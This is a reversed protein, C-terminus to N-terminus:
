RGGGPPSVYSAGVRPLPLPPAGEPLPGAPVVTGPDFIELLNARVELAGTEPNIANHLNTLANPSTDLAEALSNRQDVLVRTIGILKDVNSNIQERNDHVFGRVLDLATALEGLAGGLDGREAALFGSVDQLQRTFDAVQNDNRALMETFRQLGEVTGFLQDRTGALTRTADAFQKITENLTAGNGKANEALVDLLKSLAGDANAGHPGLATALQDISKYLEDLEVPTVTREVPIVAGGPLRPGGTYVPSFQVYRDSVLSPAVVIANANAPVPRDEDVTLEVRVLRGAPTVADVSGVPVGLVRVTSGPYLGVASPFFATVRTGRGPTVIWWTLVSLVLALVVLVTLARLGKRTAASIM